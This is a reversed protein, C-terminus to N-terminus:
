GITHEVTSTRWGEITSCLRAIEEVVQLRRRSKKIKFVHGRDDVLHDLHSVDKFEGAHRREADAPILRCSGIGGQLVFSEGDITIGVAGSTGATSPADPIPQDWIRYVIVRNGEAEIAKSLARAAALYELRESTVWEGYEAVDLLRNLEEVVSQRASVAELFESEIPSIKFEISGQDSRLSFQM